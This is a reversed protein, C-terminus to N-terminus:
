ARQAESQLLHLAELDAIPETFSCSGFSIMGERRADELTKLDLRRGRWSIGTEDVQFAEPSKEELLGTVEAQDLGTRLVATALLLNLFGFMISCPSDPAYTLRYEGRLPHHLGATAKFPVRARVCEQVFRTLDATRPFAGKTVGGTRVKARGGLRGIAAILRSPDHDIPIEIYAQLGPPLRRMIEEVGAESTAKAELTDATAGAAGPNAHRSNFEGIQELDSGLDPGALVGLRWPLAGPAHALHPEAAAGFESLRSAPVIFRGLAWASPGARYQAYNAVAITMDLGAPPFLGAYDISERLLTRIARMTFLYYNGPSL